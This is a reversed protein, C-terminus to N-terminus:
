EFWFLYNCRLSTNFGFWQLSILPPLYFFMTMSSTVEADFHISAHSQFWVNYQLLTICHLFANLGIDLMSTTSSKSVLIFCAPSISPSITASSTVTADLHLSAHCQFSANVYLLTHFHCSASWDLTITFGFHPMSASSIMSTAIWAQIWLSCSLAYFMSTFFLMSNGKRAFGVNQSLRTGACSSVM